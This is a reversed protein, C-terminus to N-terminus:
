QYSERVVKAVPQMEGDQIQVITIITKDLDGSPLFSWTDGFVGRFNTTAAVADMIKARDKEGVADIAQVIITAAEYAHVAFYDPMHGVTDQMHQVFEAAPGGMELLQTPPMGDGAIYMGEAADGAAQIILDSLVGTTGFLAVEDGMYSRMDLIVKSANTDSAGALYVFDPATGAISAMLSQYDSSRPDYGELGLITGGAAEFDHKFVATVGTGWFSQDHLVYASKWGQSTIWEVEAGVVNIDNSTNRFYNQKGTPYYMDPEGNNTVGPYAVTLGPGNNYPSLMLIGAENTLPIAIKASGSNYTGIFVVADPDSAVRVVNSTVTAPDWAGGNAIIGDDLAVYELAFGGAANGWQSLGFRFAEVGDNGLQDNAGTLPWSSYLRITGKSTDTSHPIDPNGIKTSEPMEQAAARPVQSALSVSVGAAVARSLFLRRDITGTRFQSVLDAVSCRNVDCGKNIM